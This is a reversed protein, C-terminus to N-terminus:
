NQRKLGENLNQTICINTPVQCPAMATRRPTGGEAQWRGAGSVSLIQWSLPHSLLFWLHFQPPPLCWWKQAYNANWCLFGASKWVGRLFSLMVLSFLLVKPHFCDKRFHPARFSKGSTPWHNLSQVELAHPKPKIGPWSVLIGCIM